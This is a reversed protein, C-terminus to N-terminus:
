RKEISLSFDLCVCQMPKDYPGFIESAHVDIKFKDNIEKEFRFSPYKTLIRKDNSYYTWKGFIEVLMSIPFGNSNKFIVSTPPHGHERGKKGERFILGILYNDKEVFLSGSDKNKNWGRWNPNYHYIKINEGLLKTLSDKNLSGIFFMRIVQKIDNQKLDAEQGWSFFYSVLILFAFLGNRKKRM